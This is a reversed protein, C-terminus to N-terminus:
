RRAALEPVTDEWLKKLHLPLALTPWVKLLLVKNVYTCVDSADMAENLVQRYMRRLEFPDGLDYHRNPSWDLVVPLDVTGETPGNLADLSGVIAYPRHGSYASRAPPTPM